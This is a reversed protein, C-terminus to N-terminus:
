KNILKLVLFDERVSESTIKRIKSDNLASIQDALNCLELFKLPIKKASPLQELIKLALNAQKKKILLYPQLLRLLWQADSGVLSLDHQGDNRDRVSGKDRLKKKLQMLFHCRSSKQTFSVVIRLQYKITGYDPKKCITAMISGDGDCFGALYALFDSPYDENNNFFVQQECM